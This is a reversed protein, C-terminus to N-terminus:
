ATYHFRSLTKNSVSDIIDMQVLDGPHFTGDTFDIITSEGPTWTNGSCGSGGIWQVGYHRTSIFQYGNLTPIVANLLARNRYFVAQLPGNQYTETGNHVIVVRSDYNLLHPERDSRHDINRIIFIPPPESLDWSPLFFLLLVLMALLITLAVLLITAIVPSIGRSPDPSHYV